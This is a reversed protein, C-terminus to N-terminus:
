DLFLGAAQFKPCNELLTRLRSLARIYRISAAKQQIGLVEAAEHNSLEEFHRLTLVERDIEPLRAIAAELQQCLENRLAARSPSTLQGLLKSALSYDSYGSAGRRHMSLEREASRRQAGLHRRHLDILTQNVILRLWIFFSNQPNELFHHVRATAALYAEQLIDDTDVRGYLRSDLRARVICGLRVRHRLFEEAVTQEPAERLRRVLNFQTGQAQSNLVSSPTEVMSM